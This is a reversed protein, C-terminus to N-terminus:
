SIDALIIIKTYFKYGKKIYILYELLKDKMYKYNFFNYKSLQMFAYNTYKFFVVKFTFVYMIIIHCSCLFM